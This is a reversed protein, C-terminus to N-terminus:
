PGPPTWAGLWVPAYSMGALKTQLKQDATILPVGLRDALAVYCADYATIDNALAISLAPTILDFKPTSILPWARLLATDAQVRAATTNGRKAQKWFINACEVYFLDPVHFANAPDSSLRVLTAAEAALPEPLFLKVAVSADIVCAFPAANM